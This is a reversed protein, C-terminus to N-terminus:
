FTSSSSTSQVEGKNEKAKTAMQFPFPFYSSGDMGGKFIRSGNIAARPGVTFHLLLLLLVSYPLLPM